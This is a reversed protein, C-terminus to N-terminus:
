IDGASHGTTARNTQLRGSFHLTGPELELASLVNFTSSCRRLVASIGKLLTGVGCITVDLGTIFQPSMRPVQSWGDRLRRHGRFPHLPWSSSVLRALLFQGWGGAATNLNITQIESIQRGGLDTGWTVKAGWVHFVALKQQVVAKAFWGWTTGFGALSFDLLFVLKQLVLWLPFM